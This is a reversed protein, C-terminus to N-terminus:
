RVSIQVKKDMHGRVACQFYIHIHALTLRHTEDGATDYMACDISFLPAGRPTMAGRAAYSALGLGVKSGPYNRSM